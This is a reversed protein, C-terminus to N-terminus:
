QESLIFSAERQYNVLTALDISEDTFRGEGWSILMMGLWAHKNGELLVALTCSYGRQRMMKNMEYDECEDRYLWVHSQTSVREILDSYVVTPLNQSEMQWRRVLESEVGEGTMSMKQISDLNSFYSGNSFQWVASHDAGSWVCARDAVRDLRKQKQALYLPHAKKAKLLQERWNKFLQWAYRGLLAFGGSILCWLAAAVAKGLEKQFGDLASTIDPV